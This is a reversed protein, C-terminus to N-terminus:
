RGSVYDDKSSAYQGDESAVLGGHEVNGFPLSAILLISSARDFVHWNQILASHDSANEEDTSQLTIQDLSRSQEGQVAKRSMSNMSMLISARVVKPQARRRLGDEHRILIRPGTYLM